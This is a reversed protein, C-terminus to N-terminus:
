GSRARRARRGLALGDEHFGNGLYAGAFRTRAAPSRAAARAARALTAVTFLPHTTRSRAGLM